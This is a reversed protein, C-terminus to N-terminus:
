ALLHVTCKCHQKQYFDDESIMGYIESLGDESYLISSLIAREMDLDYLNSPILAEINKNAM